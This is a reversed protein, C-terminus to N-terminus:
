ENPPAATIDALASSPDREVALDGITVMGVARGEEVVPLRRVARERMLAAAEEIQQDPSVSVLEHSCIEDLMTQNPDMELAIGRVVLDRDTVLGCIRDGDMVLVDGIDEDRMARAAEVLMATGPLGVPQGTMVERITTPM